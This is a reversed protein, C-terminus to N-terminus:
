TKYRESLIDSRNLIAIVMNGYKFKLDSPTSGGAVAVSVCGEDPFVAPDIPYVNDNILAYRPYVFCRNSSVPYEVWALLEKKICEEFETIIREPQQAM